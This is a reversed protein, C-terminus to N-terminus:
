ALEVKFTSRVVVLAWRSSETLGLTSELGLCISELLLTSTVGNEDLLLFTLELWNGDKM